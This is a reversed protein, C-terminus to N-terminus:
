DASSVARIFEVAVQPVISNGAARLLSVRSLTGDWAADLPQIRPELPIRRYKGDRCYILTSASWPSSIEQRQSGSLWGLEESGTYVLGSPESAAWPACQDARERADGHRQPRALDTDGLGGDAGCGDLDYVSQRQLGSDELGGCRPENIYALGDARGSGNTSKLRGNTGSKGTGHQQSESEALGDTARQRSFRTRGMQEGSAYAVWFLRNRIHPAGVSCAPLVAAAVAYGERELDDCVRDFWGWGIAGDVEEGFIAPPKAIRILRYWAPWLDREDSFADGKGAASFPQCPCSGTWVRGRWGALNLAVDWLGIGAFFHCREYGALDDASLSEISRSDICGNTIKGAECLNGLWEVCHADIENYFASM